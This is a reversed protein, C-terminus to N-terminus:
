GPGRVVRGTVADIVTSARGSLVGPHPVVYQLRSGFYRRVALSSRAPRRGSLNASTSVLVGGFTRCLARLGARGPVRLAVTFHKGTIWPPAVGADPVIWTYAGPWSREIRRRTDAPVSALWPDFDAASAAVLILGKSMPRNKLVLLREV